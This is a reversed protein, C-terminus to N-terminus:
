SSAKKIHLKIKAALENDATRLFLADTDQVAGFWQVLRKMEQLSLTAAEHEAKWAELKEIRQRLVDARHMGLEGVQITKQVWETKELWVDFAEDMKYLQRLTDALEKRMEPTLTAGSAVYEILATKNLNM